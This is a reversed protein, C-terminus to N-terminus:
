GFLQYVKAKKKSQNLQVLEGALRQREGTCAAVLESYLDLLAQIRERLLEVPAHPDALAQDVAQRCQLDLSGVAEWDAQQLAEQMASHTQELQLVTANM